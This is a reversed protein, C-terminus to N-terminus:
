FISSFLLEGQNHGKMPDVAYRNMSGERVHNLNNCNNYHGITSDQSNQSYKRFDASSSSNNKSGYHIMSFDPGINSTITTPTSILKVNDLSDDLSRSASRHASYFQAASQCPNNTNFNFATLGAPTTAIGNQVNNFRNYAMNPKNGLTLFGTPNVFSNSATTVPNNMGGLEFFNQGETKIPTSPPLSGANSGCSPLRSCSNLTMQRFMANNNNFILSGNDSPARKSGLQLYDEAEMLQEPGENAKLSYLWEKNDQHTYSPLGHETTSLYLRPNQKYKELTTVLEQFTPRQNYDPLWCYGMVKWIEASCIDPQYPREGNKLLHYMDKPDKDEFPKEGVSQSRSFAFHKHGNTIVLQFGSVSFLMWLTDIAFKCTFIEWITIAFAWVDSKHTFKKDSICEPALWKIPMKGGESKYECKDYDLLKALGFDTIKVCNLRQILVNRLALDRHVINKEELYAMGKAIQVCWQLMPEPGIKYRNTKVYSLLCGVPMLPTILMPPTTMVVGLLKVLNPHDVTAMIYAEELFNENTDERLVKIAIPIKM